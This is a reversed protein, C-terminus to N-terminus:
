KAEKKSKRYDAIIANIEDLTMDATGNKISDRRAQMINEMADEYSYTSEASVSFPIGGVQVSRTFFMRVASSLDLGLGEYVKTVKQKLAEDVRVQVLAGAM